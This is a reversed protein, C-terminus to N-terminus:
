IPALIISQIITEALRLSQATQNSWIYHAGFFVSGNMYSNEIKEAFLPTLDLLVTTPSFM